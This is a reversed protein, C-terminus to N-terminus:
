KECDPLPCIFNCVYLVSCCGSYSLHLVSVAAVPVLIEVFLGALSHKIDKDKVELFYQACEQLCFSLFHHVFVILTISNSLLALHNNAISTENHTLSFHFM